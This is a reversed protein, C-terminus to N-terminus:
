TDAPHLPTPQEQSPKGPGSHKFGHQAPPRQSRRKHQLLLARDDERLSCYHHPQGCAMIGGLSLCFLFSCVNLRFCAFINGFFTVLETCSTINKIKKYPLIGPGLGM